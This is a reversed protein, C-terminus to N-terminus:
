AWQTMDKFNRSYFPLVGGGDAEWVGHGDGFSTFAREHWNEVIDLWTYGLTQGDNSSLTPDLRVVYRSDSPQRDYGADELSFTEPRDFGWERHVPTKLANVVPQPSVKTIDRVSIFQQITAIDIHGRLVIPNWEDPACEARCRFGKVFFTPEAEVRRSQPKGPVARGETAPVNSDLELRVWSEPPTPDTVEIIV